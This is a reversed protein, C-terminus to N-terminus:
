NARTQRATHLPYGECSLQVREGPHIVRASDFCSAVVQAPGDSVLTLVGLAASWDLHLATGLAHARFPGAEFDWQPAGVQGPSIAARLEGAELLIRVREPAASLVRASAKPRLTVTSGESFQVDVPAERAAIVDGVQVSDTAANAVRFSVARQAWVWVLGLAICCMAGLVLGARVASSQQVLPLPRLAPIVRWLPIVAPPAIRPFASVRAWAPFLVRRMRPGVILGPVRALLDLVVGFLSLDRGSIFTAVLRSRARHVLQHHNDHAHLAAQVANGLGQLQKGAADM